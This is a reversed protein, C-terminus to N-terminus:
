SCLLVSVLMVTFVVVVFLRAVAFGFLRGAM